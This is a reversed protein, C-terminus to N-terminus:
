LAFFKNVLDVFNQDNTFRIVLDGVNGNSNFEVIFNSNSNSCIILFDGSAYVIKISMGSPSNSYKTLEDSVHFHIESLDRLLSDVQEVELVQIVEIKDFDFPLIDEKKKVTKTDLNDYNILEIAAVKDALDDYDFYFSEPDSVCSILVFCIGFILCVLLYKKKKNM